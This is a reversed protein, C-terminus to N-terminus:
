PIVHKTRLRMIVDIAPKVKGAAILQNGHTLIKLLALTEPIEESSAIDLPATKTAGNQTIVLPEREQTLETLAETINAKPRSNSKVRKSYRM